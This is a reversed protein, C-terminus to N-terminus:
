QRGGNKCTPCVKYGYDDILGPHIGCSDCRPVGPLCEVEPRPESGCTVCWDLGSSLTVLRHSYFPRPSQSRPLAVIGEAGLGPAAVSPPSATPMKPEFRVEQVSM